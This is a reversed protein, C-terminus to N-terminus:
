KDKHDNFFDSWMMLDFFAREDDGEKAADNLTRRKGFILAGLFLLIFLATCSILFIILIM